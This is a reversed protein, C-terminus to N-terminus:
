ASTAAELCPIVTCDNKSSTIVGKSSTIVGAM